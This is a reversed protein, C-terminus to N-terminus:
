FVADIEEPVTVDCPLVLPDNLEEALARVSAELRETAYTLCLRMGQSNLAKACSWALSRKNAVGFVVGTRDILSTPM